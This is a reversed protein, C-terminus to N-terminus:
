IADHIDQRARTWVRQSHVGQLSVARMTIMVIVIIVSRTPEIVIISRPSSQIHIQPDPNQGGRLEDIM